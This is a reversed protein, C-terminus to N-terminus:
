QRIRAEPLMGRGQCIPEVLGGFKDGTLRKIVKGVIQDGRDQLVTEVCGSSVFSREPKHVGAFWLQVGHKVVTGRGRFDEFM